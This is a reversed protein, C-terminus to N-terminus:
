LKCFCSSIDTVIVHGEKKLDVTVYGKKIHVSVNGSLVDLSCEKLKCSKKDGAAPRNLTTWRENERPIKKEGAPFFIHADRM